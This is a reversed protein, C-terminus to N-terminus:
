WNKDMYHVYSCHKENKASVSNHVSGTVVNKTCDIYGERYQGKGLVAVIAKALEPKEAIFLNIKKNM